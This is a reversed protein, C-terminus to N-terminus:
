SCCGRAGWHTVLLPGVRRERCAAGVLRVSQDFTGRLVWGQLQVGSRRTAARPLAIRWQHEGAVYIVQGESCLSNFMTRSNDKTCNDLEVGLQGSACHAAGTSM